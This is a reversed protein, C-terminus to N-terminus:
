ITSSFPMATASVLMLATWTLAPGGQDDDTVVVDGCIMAAVLLSASPYKSNSTGRASRDRTFQRKVIVASFRAGKL